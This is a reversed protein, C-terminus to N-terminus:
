LQRAQSKAALLGLRLVRVVLHARVALEEVHSLLHCSLDLLQVRLVLPQAALDGLELADRLRALLVEM